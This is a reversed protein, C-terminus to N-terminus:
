NANGDRVLGTARAAAVVAASESTIKRGAFAASDFLSELFGPEDVAATPLTFDGLGEVTFHIANAAAVRLKWLPRASGDVTVRDFPGKYLIQNVASTNGVLGRKTLQAVIWSAAAPAPEGRILEIIDQETIAAM